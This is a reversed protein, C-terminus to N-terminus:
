LRSRGDGVSAEINPYIAFRQVFTRCGTPKFFNESRLAM